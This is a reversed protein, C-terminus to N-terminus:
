LLGKLESFGKSAKELHAKAADLNGKKVALRAKKLHGNSRQRKMDVNDGSPIQKSLRSAKRILLIVDENSSGNAIANTAETIKASVNDVAQEGAAFVSSSLGMSVAIVLSLAFSKLFKM